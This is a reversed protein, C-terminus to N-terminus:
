EEKRSGRGGRGKGGVERGGGRKMCASVAGCGETHEEAAASSLGLLSLVAM